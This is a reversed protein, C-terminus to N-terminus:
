EGDEDLMVEEGRALKDTFLIGDLHDIEHCFCRAKLDEGTYEHWEGHRDQAKVKVKSPRLTIGSKGPLSLCGETEKQRGSSKIIEPNILELFGDGCDIVVARRLVGVQVAALGVGDAKYMTEKMDDLLTFLRDNFETVPRSTKRLIPDEETKIIRLAM